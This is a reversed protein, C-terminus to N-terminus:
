RWAHNVKMDECFENDEEVEDLDDVVFGDGDGCIDAQIQCQSGSGVEFSSRVGIDGDVVCCYIELNM